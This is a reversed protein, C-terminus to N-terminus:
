RNALMQWDQDEAMVSDYIDASSSIHAPGAFLMTLIAWVVALVIASGLIDITLGSRPEHRFQSSM